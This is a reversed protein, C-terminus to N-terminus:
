AELYAAMWRLGSPDPTRRVHDYGVIIIMKADGSMKGIAQTLNCAQHKERVMQLKNVFTEDIPKVATVWDAKASSDCPTLYNGSQADDEYIKGEDEYALLQYGLAWASRIIAAYVPDASYYGVGRTVRHDLNAQDIDPQLTEM